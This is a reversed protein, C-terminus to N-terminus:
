KPLLSLSSLCNGNRNLSVGLMFALTSFKRAKNKSSKIEDCVDFVMFKTTTLSRVAYGNFCCFFAQHLVM